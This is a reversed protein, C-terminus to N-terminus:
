GTTNERILTQWAEVRLKLGYFAIDSPLFPSIFHFDYEMAVMFNEGVQIIPDGNLDIGSFRIYQEAIDPDPNDPEFHVRDWQIMDEGIAHRARYQANDPNECFTVDSPPNDHYKDVSDPTVCYPFVSLFLAAEGVADELALYTFWLRGLDIVASVIMVMLVMSVSLEVLSQGKQAKNLREKTAAQFM